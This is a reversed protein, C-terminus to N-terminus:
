AIFKAFHRRIAWHILEINNKLKAKQRTQALHYEVAKSSIGLRTAIESIRVGEVYMRVIQINRRTPKNSM